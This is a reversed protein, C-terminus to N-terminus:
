VTLFADCIGHSELSLNATANENRDGSIDWNTLVFAGAWYGLTGLWLQVNKPDPSRWWGDYFEITAQKNDLIGSGDVSISLADKIVQQFAPDDPNDCDPVIVKNASSTFKVGRKTNILCPHAFVEPIAGNGIMILFKTGRIASVATM